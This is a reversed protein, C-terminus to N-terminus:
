FNILKHYPKFTPVNIFLVEIIYYINLPILDTKTKFFISEEEYKDNNLDNVWFVNESKYWLLEFYIGTNIIEIDFKVFEYFDDYVKELIFNFNSDNSFIHIFRQNFSINTEPHDVKCKLCM